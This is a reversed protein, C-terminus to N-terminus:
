AGTLMGTVYTIRLSTVSGLLQDNIQILDYFAGPSQSCILGM